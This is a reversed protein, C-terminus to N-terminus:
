FMYVAQVVAFTTEQITITYM